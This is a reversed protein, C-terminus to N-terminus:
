NRFQKNIRSCISLKLFRSSGIPTDAVGKIRTNCEQTLIKFKQVFGDSVMTPQSCSDLLIRASGRIEVCQFRVIASPLLILENKEKPPFM